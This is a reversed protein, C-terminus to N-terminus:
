QWGIVSMSQVIQAVRAILYVLVAGWILGPVPFARAGGDARRIERCLDAVDEATIRDMEEYPEQM